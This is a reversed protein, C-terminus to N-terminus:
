DDELAHWCFEVMSLSPAARSSLWLYLKRRLDSISIPAFVDLTISAMFLRLCPAAGGHRELLMSAGPGKDVTLPLIEGPVATAHATVAADSMKTRVVGSLLNDEDADNAAVDKAWPDRDGYQPVNGCTLAVATAQIALM